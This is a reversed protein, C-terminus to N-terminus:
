GAINAIAWVAQESIRKNQSSLLHVLYPLAGAKVVAQTQYSKGSAIDALISAAEFQM